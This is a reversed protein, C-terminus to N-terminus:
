EQVECLSLNKGIEHYYCLNVVCYSMRIPFLECLQSTKYMYMYKNILDLRFYVYYLLIKLMSRNFYVFQGVDISVPSVNLLIILPRKTHVLSLHWVSTEIVHVNIVTLSLSVKVSFIKAVPGTHIWVSYIRESQKRDTCSKYNM